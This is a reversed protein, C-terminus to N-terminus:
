NKKSLLAIATKTLARGAQKSLPSSNEKAWKRLSAKSGDQKHLRRLDKIGFTNRKRPTNSPQPPQKPAPAAAITIAEEMFDREEVGFTQRKMMKIPHNM